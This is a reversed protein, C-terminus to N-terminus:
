STAFGVFHMFDWLIVFFGLSIWFIGCFNFVRAILLPKPVSICVFSQSINFIGCCNFVKDIPHLFDWLTGCFASFGVFNCPVESFYLFDWLLQFSQCNPPTKASFYMQKGLLVRRSFCLWPLFKPSTSPAFVKNNNERSHM